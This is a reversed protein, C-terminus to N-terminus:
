GLKIEDTPDSAGEYALYSRWWLAYRADWTWMLVRWCGGRGLKKKRTRELYESNM